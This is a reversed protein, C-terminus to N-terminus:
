YHHVVPLATVERDALSGTAWLPEPDVLLMLATDYHHCGHNILDSVGM